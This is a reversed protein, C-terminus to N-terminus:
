RMAITDLCCTKCQKEEEKDARKMEREQKMRQKAEMEEIMKESLVVTEAGKLVCASRRVFRKTEKATIIKPM